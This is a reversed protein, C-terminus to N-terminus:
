KRREGQPLPLPGSPLASRAPSPEDRVFRLIAELVGEMNTMVDVNSFRVVRFGEQELARTRAQDAGETSAHSDGDVEVVLRAEAAYFDAVYHTLWVQRRFKINGLQRNRLKSWLRREPEPASKRMDRVLALSTPQDQDPRKM